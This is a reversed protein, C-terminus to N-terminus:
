FRNWQRAHTRDRKIMKHNVDEVALITDKPPTPAKSSKSRYWNVLREIAWMVGNLVEFILLSLAGYTVIKACLHVKPTKREIMDIDHQIAEYQQFLEQKRRAVAEVGINRDNKFFNLMAEIKALDFEQESTSYANANHQPM